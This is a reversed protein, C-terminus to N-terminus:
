EFLVLRTTPQRVSTECIWSSVLQDSSQDQQQGTIDVRPEGVRDLAPTCRLLRAASPSGAAAQHLEVKGRTEFIKELIGPTDRALIRSSIGVVYCQTPLFGPPTEVKM